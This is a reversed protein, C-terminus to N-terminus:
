AQCRAGSDLYGASEHYDLSVTLYYCLSFAILHLWGVLVFSLGWNRERALERLRTLQAPTSLEDWLSPMPKSM